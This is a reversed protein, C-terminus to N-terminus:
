KVDYICPFPCSVTFTWYWRALISLKFCKMHICFGFWCFSRHSIMGFEWHWKPIWSILGHFIRDLILLSGWFFQSLQYLKQFFGYVYKFSISHCSVCAMWISGAWYTASQCVKSSALLCYLFLGKTTLKVPKIVLTSLKLCIVQILFLSHLFLM